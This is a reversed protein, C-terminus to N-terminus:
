QSGSARAVIGDLIELSERVTGMGPLDSEEIFSEIEYLHDLGKAVILKVKDEGLAQQMIESIGIPAGHDDDGHIIVTPPWEAVRAANAPDKTWDYGQDIEGVLDPWANNYTYYEYMAGRLRKALDGGQPQEEEEKPRVFDPNKLGSPLLREVAFNISSTKDTDGVTLPLNSLQDMTIGDFDSSDTLVTSSSYFPHRFTAIGCVSFLALPPIRANHAVRSAVFFGGSAGAVIVRREKGEEGGKVNLKRAFDYAALADEVLGQAGVQPMQRFDASIVPWKRQWCAQVIWPAICDRARNVLGGSHFFLFVPSDPPYDLDADTYIDCEIPIGHTAYVQTSKSLM